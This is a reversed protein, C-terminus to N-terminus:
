FSLSYFNFLAALQTFRGSVLLVGMAIVLTGGAIEIARARRQMARLLGRMRDLVLAALLFPLGLGLAYAFLLAGGALLDASTLLLALIAALYPGVCPTWGAGFSVGIAFSRAVSGPVGGVSAQRAVALFPISVVGTLHLGLVILILGGARQAWMLLDGAAQAFAAIAVWLLTFVASFGLVFALAHGFTRGRAVRETRAAAGTLDALYAPVLPLVCPSLFSLLGAGFAIVVNV